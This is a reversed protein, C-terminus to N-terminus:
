GKKNKLEAGVIKGIRKVSAEDFGDLLGDIM